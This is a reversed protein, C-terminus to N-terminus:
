GNTGGNGPPPPSVPPEGITPNTNPLPPEGLANPTTSTDNTETGLAPPTVGDTGSSPTASFPGPIAAAPPTTVTGGPAAGFMPGEPIAPTYSGEYAVTPSPMPFDDCRDCHACGVALLALAPPAM